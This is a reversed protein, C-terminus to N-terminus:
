GRSEPQLEAAYLSLPSALFAEEKKLSRSLPPTNATPGFPLHLTPLLSITPISEGVPWM